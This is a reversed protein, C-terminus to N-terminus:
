VRIPAGPILDSCERLVEGLAIQDQYVSERGAGAKRHQGAGGLIEVSEISHVKKIRLIEFVYIDLSVLSHEEEHWNIRSLSVKGSETISQRKHTVYLKTKRLKFINFQLSVAFETQRGPLCDFCGIREILDASRHHRDSRKRNGFAPTFPIERETNSEVNDHNGRDGGKSQAYEKRRKNKREVKAGRLRTFVCEKFGSRGSLSFECVSFNSRVLCEDCVCADDSVERM